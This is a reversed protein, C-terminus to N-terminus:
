MPTPRAGTKVVELVLWACFDFHRQRILGAARVLLSVREAASTKKWSAFAFQAAEVAANAEKSTAAYHIGIVESPNAPNVSRFTESTQLDSGGITLDYTQGLEARARDLADHMARKNEATSFDTFPENRFPSLSPHLSVSSSM